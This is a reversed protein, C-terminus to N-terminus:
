LILDWVGLMPKVTLHVYLGFLKAMNGGGNTNLLEEKTLSQYNEIKKM